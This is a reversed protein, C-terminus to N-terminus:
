MWAFQQRYDFCVAMGYSTKRRVTGEVKVMHKKKLLKNPWTDEFLSMFVRTGEPKPHDTIIFAGDDSINLTKFEQSTTNAFSVIARLLPIKHRSKLRREM